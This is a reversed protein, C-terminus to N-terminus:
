TEIKPGLLHDVIRINELITDDFMMGDQRVVSILSRLDSFPTRLLSVPSRRLPFPLFSTSYIWLTRKADEIKRLRHLLRSAFLSASLPSRLVGERDCM